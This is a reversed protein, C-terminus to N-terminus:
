PVGEVRVRLDTFLSLPSLDSTIQGVVSVPSYARCEGQRSVPTPGWFICLAPGQPWYAIAGPEVVEIPNEIPLEVSIYFYIEEGWRNGKGELPLQRWLARATTSDNLEGDLVNSGVWIRIRLRDRQEQHAM